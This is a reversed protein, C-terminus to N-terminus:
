NSENKVDIKLLKIPPLENTKLAIENKRLLLYQYILMQNIKDIKTFEIGYIAKPLSYDDKRAVKGVLTMENDIIEDNANFPISIKFSIIGNLPLINKKFLVISIGSISIDKIFEEDPSPANEIRSFKRVKRQSVVEPIQIVLECTKEAAEVSRIITSEFSYRNFDSIWWGKITKNESGIFSLTPNEIEVILENKDQNIEKLHSIVNVALDNKDLYFFLLLPDDNVTIQQFVNSIDNQSIIPEM